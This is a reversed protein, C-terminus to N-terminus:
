NKQTTGPPFEKVEKCDQPRHNMKHCFSCKKENYTFYRACEFEHHGNKMCKTCHKTTTPDYDPRCNLGKQMQPYIRRTSSSRNTSRYTSRYPARSQRNESSFKPSRSRNSSHSGSHYSKDKSRNRDGSSSNLRSRSDGRSNSRASHSNKSLVEFSSSGNSQRSSPRSSSRDRSYSRYYGAKDVYGRTPIIANFSAQYFDPPKRNRSSARLPLISGKPPKTKKTKEEKANQLALAQFHELLNAPELDEPHNQVLLVQDNVTALRRNHQVFVPSDTPLDKFDIVQKPTPIYPLNKVAQNGMIQTPSLPTLPTSAQSSELTHFAEEPTRMAKAQENLNSLWDQDPVVVHTPTQTLPVTQATQQRVPPQATPVPPSPPPLLIAVQATNAPKFTLQPLAAAQNQLFHDPQM